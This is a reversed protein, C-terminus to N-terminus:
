AASEIPDNFRIVVREGSAVSRDLLKLVIKPFGTTDFRRRRRTIAVWCRRM